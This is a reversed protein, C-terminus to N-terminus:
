RLVDTRRCCARQASTGAPLSLHIRTPPRDTVRRDLLRIAQDLLSEEVEEALGDHGAARRRQTAELAESPYLVNLCRGGRGLRIVQSGM